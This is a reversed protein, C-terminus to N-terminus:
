FANLFAQLHFLSLGSFRLWTFVYSFNRLFHSVSSHNTSFFASYYYVLRYSGDYSCSVATIFSMLCHCQLSNKTNYIDAAKSQRRTIFKSWGEMKFRFANRIINHSCFILKAHFCEAAM